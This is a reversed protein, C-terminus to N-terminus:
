RVIDALCDKVAERFIKYFFCIRCPCFLTDLILDRSKVADGGADMNGKACVFLLLLLLLNYTGIGAPATRLALVQIGLFVVFPLFRAMRFPLLTLIMFVYSLPEVISKSYRKRVEKQLILHQQAPHWNYVSFWACACARM